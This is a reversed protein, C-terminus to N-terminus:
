VAPFLRRTFFLGASFISVLGLTAPEPIATVSFGQFDKKAIYASTGAQSLATLTNDLEMHIKTAGNVFTIGNQVLLDEIDIMMDGSWIGDYLPVGGASLLFSGNANPNFTMATSANLPQPLAVGDVELIEVFFSASVDAYADNSFGSLSFDGRESFMLKNIFNGPDSHIDFGLQGDTTDTGGAGSAFASFI